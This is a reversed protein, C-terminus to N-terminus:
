RGPMELLVGGDIAVIEGNVYRNRALFLVGIGMEEDSGARRIPVHGKEEIKEQPM